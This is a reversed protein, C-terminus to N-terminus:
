STKREKLERKPSVFRENLEINLIM